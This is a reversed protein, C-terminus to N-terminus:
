VSGCCSVPGIDSNCFLYFRFRYYGLHYPNSFNLLIRKAKKVLSGIKNSVDSDEFNARNWSTKEFCNKAKSKECVYDTTLSVNPFFTFFNM